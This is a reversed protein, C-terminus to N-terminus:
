QNLNANNMTDGNPFVRHAMEFGPSKFSVGTKSKLMQKVTAKDTVKWTHKGYFGYINHIFSQILDIIDNPLHATPNSEEIDRIYGYHAPQYAQISNVNHSLLYFEFDGRLFM